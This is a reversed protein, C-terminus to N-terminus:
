GYSTGLLWTPKDWDIKNRSYENLTFHKKCFDILIQTSEPTVASLIKNMDFADVDWSYAHVNSGKVVAIYYPDESSGTEVIDVPMPNAEVLDNKQHYDLEDPDHGLTSLWWGEMDYQDWPINAGALDFGFGIDAKPGNGM